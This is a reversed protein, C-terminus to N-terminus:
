KRRWLPVFSCPEGYMIKKAVGQMRHMVDVYAEVPVIGSGCGKIVVISDEFESLDMAAIRSSFYNRVLDDKQGLAVSTAIPELRSAVLMFAWTPVIADASCFVAVHQDAFDTWPHDKVFERFEKERVVMGGYLWPAIDLEVVERGDWLDEPNFVKLDSEAVRNVIPEM